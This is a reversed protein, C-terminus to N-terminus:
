DQPRDTNDGWRRRDYEDYIERVEPHERLRQLKILHCM